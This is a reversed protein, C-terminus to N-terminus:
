QSRLSAAEAHMYPLRQCRMFNNLIATSGEALFCIKKNTNGSDM